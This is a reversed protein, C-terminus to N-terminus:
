PLPPLMSQTPALEGSVPLAWVFTVEGKSPLVSGNMMLPVPAKSPGSSRAYIIAGAAHLEKTCDLLRGIGRVVEVRDRVDLRDLGRADLLVTILDDPITRSSRLSDFVKTEELSWTKAAHMWNQNKSGRSRAVVQLLQGFRAGFDDEKIDDLLGMRQPAGLTDLRLATRLDITEGIKWFSLPYLYCDGPRAAHGWGALKDKQYIQLPRYVVVFVDTLDHNSENTLSGDLIHLPDTTYRATGTIGALQGSWRGQMKKLTNRFIPSIVNSPM